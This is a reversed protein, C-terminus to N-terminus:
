LEDAPPQNLINEPNRILVDRPKSGDSTGVVYHWKGDVVSSTSTATNACWSTGNSIYFSITRINM